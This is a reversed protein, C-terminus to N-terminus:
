VYGGVLRASFEGFDGKPWGGAALERQGLCALFTWLDGRAFTKTGGVSGHRWGCAVAAEPRTKPWEWAATSKYVCM